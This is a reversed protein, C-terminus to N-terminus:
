RPARAACAASRALAPSLARASGGTPPSRSPARSPSRMASQAADAAIRPPALQAALAAFEPDDMGATDNTGAHSAHHSSRKGAGGKKGASRAKRRRRGSGDAAAKSEEGHNRRSSRAAKREAKKNAKKPPGGSALKVIKVFWVLNLGFGAHVGAISLALGRWERLWLARQIWLHAIGIGYGLVRTLLFTLAFAFRASYLGIGLRTSTTCLLTAVM